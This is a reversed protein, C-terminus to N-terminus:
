FWKYLAKIYRLGCAGPSPRGSGTFQSVMFFYLIRVGKVM